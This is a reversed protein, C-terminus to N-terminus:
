RAGCDNTPATGEVLTLRITQLLKLVEAGTWTVGELAGENAHITQDVFELAALSRREASQALMLDLALSPKTARLASRM